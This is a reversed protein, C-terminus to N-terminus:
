AYKRCKYKQHLVELSSTDLLNYGIRNCSIFEGFCAGDFLTRFLDHRVNPYEAQMNVSLEPAHCQQYSNVWTSILRYPYRALPPLVNAHNGHM